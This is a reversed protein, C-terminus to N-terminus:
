PSESLKISTFDPRQGLKQPPLEWLHPPWGARKRGAIRQCVRCQRWPSNQRKDTKSTFLRGHESFAHGAPCHTKARHFQRGKQVGDIINEKQTGLSLHAPNICKRNDCSHIIVGDPWRPIPGHLCVWLLRHVKWTEGKFVIDGYGLRNIYGTYEHCGSEAFHRRGMIRELILPLAIEDPVDRGILHVSAFCRNATPNRKNM